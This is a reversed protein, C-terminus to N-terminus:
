IPVGGMDYSMEKDSGVRKTIRRDIPGNKSEYLQGFHSSYWAAARLDGFKEIVDNDIGLYGVMMSIWSRLLESWSTVNLLSEGDLGEEDLVAKVFSELLVRERPYLVNGYMDYENPQVDPSTVATDWTLHSFSNPILFVQETREPLQTPYNFTQSARDFSRYGSHIERLVSEPDPLTDLVERPPSRDPSALQFGSDLLKRTAQQYDEDRVVLTHVQIPFAHDTVSLEPNAQPVQEGWCCHPCWSTGICSTGM